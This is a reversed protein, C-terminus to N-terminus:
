KILSYFEERTPGNEKFAGTLSSTVMVANQKQVGRATMCLHQAEIVCAAGLPDLYKNIAETVQQCLKEQIQMRRAYAELLRSLKSIGIVKGNPIYAIHCKGHFPIMHHECTSYFEINKLLVMEDCAGEAFTKFLGPVDAKYGGFLTKYSKVIRAPTELLGERTPDEGIYQLVRTLNDEIDANEGKQSEWPFTIWGLEKDGKHKIKNVLAYFPRDYQAQWTGQTSGSDVIDDVMIDCDAPNQVAVVGTLKAFVLGAVISGGTPVGWVKLPGSQNCLGRKSWDHYLAHARTELEAWTIYYKEM